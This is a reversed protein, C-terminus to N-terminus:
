RQRRKFLRYLELQHKLTIENKKYLQEVLNPGLLFIDEEAPTPATWVLTEKTSELLRILELTNDVDHRTINQIEMLLQDGDMPYYNDEKPPTAYDARDLIDQYQITYLANRYFCALVKLRTQLLALEKPLGNKRLTELEDIAAQLHGAAQSFFNGAIMSGSFGNIIEFGQINMLDAAEEESNAQFQFKRYYDKEEATLEMPFPVLPRTIWRQNVTAVLMLPDGSMARINHVARSIKEWVSMLVDAYEVGGQALAVQHINEMRGAVDTRPNKRFQELLGVFEPYDLYDFTVTLNASPDKGAEQLQEAIRFVQPIGPIPGVGNDYYPYGILRNPVVSNRTKNNLSQGEQLAPIVSAIEAQSIYGSGYYMSVEATLGAEKAGAQITSMFGTVRDAYSRQECWAPGNQGPYLSVSWCIGGGSDNTLLNFWEIPAHRCLEAVAKRYMELVQPNDICPAYYTHRARRPHECRPGRWEPHAQFVAEPLWAPEKGTYAAKLGLEKLIACRQTVMQLNKRAYEAPLYEKLEPPVVVKFITSLLMGWNPYPDNRDLDWQWMSKPLDSISVHTAGLRAAQQAFARFEELTNTPCTFIIKRKQTMREAGQSYPNEPASVGNQLPPLFFVIWLLVRLCKLRM